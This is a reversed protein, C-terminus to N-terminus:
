GFKKQTAVDKQFFSKQQEYDHVVREFARVTDILIEQFSRMRIHLIRCIDRQDAFEVFWAKLIARQANTLRVSCHSWCWEIIQADSEDIKHVISTTAAIEGAHMAMARCVRYTGSTSVGRTARLRFHAGWNELRGEFGTKNKM